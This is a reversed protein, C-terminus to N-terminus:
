SSRLAKLHGKIRDKLSPKKFLKGAIMGSTVVEAIEGSPKLEIGELLRNNQQASKLLGVLGSNYADSFQQGDAVRTSGKAVKKGLELTAELEKDIGKFLRKLDGAKIVERGKRSERDAIDNFFVGELKYFTCQKTDQWAAQRELQPLWHNIEANEETVGSTQRTIMGEIIDINMSEPVNPLSRIQQTMAMKMMDALLREKSAKCIFSDHM